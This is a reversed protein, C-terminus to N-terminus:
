RPVHLFGRWRLSFCDAPGGNWASGERWDVLLSPEIRRAALARFDGGYYAECILGPKITGPTVTAAKLSLPPSPPARRGRGAVELLDVREFVTPSRHSGIGLVGPARLGWAAPLSM